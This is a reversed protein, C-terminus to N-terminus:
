DELDKLQFLSKNNCTIRINSMLSYVYSFTVCKPSSIKAHCIITNTEVCSFPELLVFFHSLSLIVEFRHLEVMNNLISYVAYGKSLRTIQKYCYPCKTQIESAM